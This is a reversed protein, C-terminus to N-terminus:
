STARTPTPRHHLGRRRRDDWSGVKHFYPDNDEIKRMEEDLYRVNEIDYYEQYDGHDVDFDEGGDEDDTDEDVDEDVDESQDVDDDDGDHNVFM